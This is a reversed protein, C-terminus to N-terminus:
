AAFCVYTKWDFSPLHSALVFRTRGRPDCASQAQKANAQFFFFNLVTRSAPLLMLDRSFNEEAFVLCM